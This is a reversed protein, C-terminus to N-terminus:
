KGATGENWYIKVNHTARGVAVIDVRGDGNLDGCTLDETAMGGADLSHLAWSGDAARRYLNVGVSGPGATPERWGAVIEDNGDGDFDAACLGHGGKLKPDIVTRTWLRDADKGPPTYVVVQTGHFPEITAIFPNGGNLRGPKVESTGLAGKPDSQDGTGLHKLTAKGGAGLSLTSVGEYSAILLDNGKGRSRPPGVVTFNHQVHLSDILTKAEWPGKVPDAPIQFSLLRAGTEMWNKGATSDRGKLPGVILEVKGDGDLDAFNIRHLTPESELIPHVEWPQDIDAGQRLWQLSGGDKTNNFDWEAGLAVDLKGDGDIDHLALCVNDRKSLKGHITHLKWTPNEFWIVRASDAVVIDPKGDGNVDGLRVGYGVTLTKDIEQAKFQPISSPEAIATPALSLLPAAALLWFRPRM